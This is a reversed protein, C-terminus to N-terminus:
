QFCDKVMGAGRKAYELRELARVVEEDGDYACRALIAIGERLAPGPRAFYLNGDSAYVRQERFARLPELKSMALRADEENRKLDFGCNGIIVVDPDCQYIKDWTLQVSKCTNKTASSSSLFASTCGSHQFM